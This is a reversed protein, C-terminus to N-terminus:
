AKVVYKGRAEIYDIIKQLAMVTQLRAQQGSLGDTAMTDWDITVEIRAVTASGALETVTHHNDQPNCRYKRTAM